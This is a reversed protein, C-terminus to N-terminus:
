SYCDTKQCYGRTLSIKQITLQLSLELDRFEMISIQRTFLTAYSGIFHAYQCGFVQERFQARFKEKKLLCINLCWRPALSSTSNFGNYLCFQPRILCCALFSFDKHYILFVPLIYIHFWNKSFIQSQHLLFFVRQSFSETLRVSQAWTHLASSALKQDKTESKGTLLWTGFRSHKM